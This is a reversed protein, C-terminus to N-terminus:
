GVADDDAGQKVKVRRVLLFQRKTFRGRKWLRDFYSSAAPDPAGCLDAQPRGSWVRIHQEEGDAADDVADEAAAEPTSVNAFGGAESLLGALQRLYAGNDSLIMLTGSKPKLVRRISQLTEVTLLHPADQGRTEGEGGRREPPEPFNVFVRSVSRPALRQLAEAADGAMACFDATDLLCARALTRFVRDRRLEMCAWNAKGRDASAQACVWHGDGSCVELKLPLAPQEFLGGLELLQRGQRGTKMAKALRTSIVTVSSKASKLLPALGFSAKLESVLTDTDLPKLSSPGPTALAPSSSSSSATAEGEKRPLLIVRSLRPLLTRRAGDAPKDKSAQLWTKLLGAREQLEAEKFETFMAVSQGSSAQTAAATPAEADAVPEKRLLAARKLAGRARAAPEGLLSSAEAVLEWLHALTRPPMTTTAGSTSEEETAGVSMGIQEGAALRKLLKRVAVTKMAMCHTAVFYEYSTADPLFGWSSDTQETTMRGLLRSALAADSVRKCGRLMTNATRLNPLCGAVTMDEFVMKAAEQLREAECLGKLLTTYTVIGPQIGRRRSEEVWSRAQVLDGVRVAANVLAGFTPPTPTLGQSVLEEYIERARATQKQKAAAAIARNLRIVRDRDQKRSSKGTGEPTQVAASGDGQRLRKSTQKAEASSDAARKVSGKSPGDSKRTDIWVGAKWYGGGKGAAKGGKSKRKGKGKGKM